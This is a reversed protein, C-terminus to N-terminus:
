HELSLFDGHEALSVVNRSQCDAMADLRCAGLDNVLRGGAKDSGGRAGCTKRLLLRDLGQCILM